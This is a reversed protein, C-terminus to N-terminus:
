PPEGSGWPDDSRSDRPVGVRWCGRRQCEVAIAGQVWKQPPCRAPPLCPAMFVPSERPGKLGVPRLGWEDFLPMQKMFEVKNLCCYLLCGEEPLNAPMLDGTLLELMTRRAEPPLAPAQLRMRDGYGSFTWMQRSHRQLPAIRCRIFEKVVMHATVGLDKLRALRLWVHTLRRRYAERAGLRLESCSSGSPAAAPPQAHWRGRVGM